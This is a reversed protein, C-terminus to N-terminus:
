CLSEENRKRKRELCKYCSMCISIRVWNNLDIKELKTFLRCIRPILQRWDNRYVLCIGASYNLKLNGTNFTTVKHTGFFHAKETTTGVRQFLIEGSILVRSKRRPNRFSKLGPKSGLGTASNNKTQKPDRNQKIQTM